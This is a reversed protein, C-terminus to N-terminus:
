GVAPSETAVHGVDVEGPNAHLGFFMSTLNV